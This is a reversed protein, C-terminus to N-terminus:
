PLRRPRFQAQRRQRRHHDGGLRLRPLHRLAVPAELTLRARSQKTNRAHVPGGGTFNAPAAVCAKFVNDWTASVRGNFPLSEGASGPSVGAALVILLFARFLQRRRTM